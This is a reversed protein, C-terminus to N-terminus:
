RALPRVAWLRDFGDAGAYLCQQIRRSQRALALVLALPLGVVQPGQDLTHGHLRPLLPLLDQGHAQLGTGLASAAGVLHQIHQAQRQDWVAM